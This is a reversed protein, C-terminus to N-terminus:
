PVLGWARDSEIRLQHRLSENEKKTAELERELASVNRDGARREAAVRLEIQRSVQKRMYDVNRAAAKLDSEVKALRRKLVAVDDQADARLFTDVSLGKYPNM